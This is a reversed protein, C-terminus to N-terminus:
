DELDHLDLLAKGFERLKAEYPKQWRDAQHVRDLV